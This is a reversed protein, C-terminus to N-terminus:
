RRKAVSRADPRYFFNQEPVFRLPEIDMFVRGSTSLNLLLIACHIVCVLLVTHCASVYMVGELSDVTVVKDKIRHYDHRSM